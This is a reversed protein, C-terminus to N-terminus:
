APTPVQLRIILKSSLGTPNTKDVEYRNQATNKLKSILGIADQQHISKIAKNILDEVDQRLMTECNYIHLGTPGHFAFLM